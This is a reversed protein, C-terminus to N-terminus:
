FTPPPFAELLEPTVGNATVIRRYLDVAPTPVREFREHRCDVAYLGFRPSFSGLEYNDCISWHLYGLVPIGDRIARQMADIHRVLFAERTWGDARPALNSTAMGNEAILVPLKFWAHYNKLVHYLGEPHIEWEQAPVIPGPINWRCYYDVAIYDLSQGLSFWDGRLAEGVERMRGHPTDGASAFAHGQFGGPIRYTAAYNNFSVYAKPDNAHILRYAQRHCEVWAKSVRLALIPNRHGPPFSGLCYGAGIIVLPENFTLWWDVEEAYERAVFAVYRRFAQQGRETVWGGMGDELWQPWSFHVLTVVPQMGHRRLSRFLGHYFAVGEPDFTGPTPEIRSWEISTRFATLGMAAANAIDTEYLELGNAAKGSREETKGRKEFATWISQPNSGEWQFGSTSVGWLFHERGVPSAGMRARSSAPTQSADGGTESSAVAATQEQGSRAFDRRLAALDNELRPDAVPEGRMPAEHLRDHRLRLDLADLVATLRRRFPGAAQRHKGLSKLLWNWANGDGQKPAPPLGQVLSQLAAAAESELEAKGSPATTVAHVDGAPRPAAPSWTPVFARFWEEPSQDGFREQFDLLAIRDIYTNWLRETRPTPGQGAELAGSTTFLFWTGVLTAFLGKGLTAPIQRM